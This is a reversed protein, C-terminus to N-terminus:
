KESFSHQSLPPPPPPPPPHHYSHSSKCIIYGSEDEENDNNPPFTNLYLSQSTKKRKTKNPANTIIDNNRNNNRLTEGMITTSMTLKGNTSATSPPPPPSSSNILSDILPSSSSSPSPSQPLPPPLEVPLSPPLPPAIVTPISERLFPLRTTNDTIRHHRHNNTNNSSNTVSNQQLIDDRMKRIIAISNECEKKKEMMLMEIRKSLNKYLLVGIVILVIFLFFLICVIITYMIKYDVSQNDDDTTSNKKEIPESGSDECNKMYIDGNQRRNNDYLQRSCNGKKGYGDVDMVDGHFIYVRTAKNKEGDNVDENRKAVNYLSNPFLYRNSIDEFYYYCGDYMQYCMMFKSLMLVNLTPMATYPERDDSSSFFRCVRKVNHRHVSDTLFCDLQNKGLRIMQYGMKRDEIIYYCVSLALSDDRFLLAECSATSYSYKNVGTSIRCFWQWSGVNKCFSLDRLDLYHDTDFNYVFFHNKLLPTKIKDGYPYYLPTISYLYFSSSRDIEGHENILSIAKIPINILFYLINDNKFVKCTSILTYLHYYDQQLPYPLEISVESTFEKLSEFLYHPPFILSLPIKNEYLVQYIENIFKESDVLVQQIHPLIFFDVTDNNFKEEKQIGSELNGNESVFSDLSHFTHFPNNLRYMYDINQWENKIGDVNVKPYIQYKHAELLKESPQEFAGHDDGYEGLFSKFSEITRVSANRLDTMMADNPLHETFIANDDIFRIFRAFTENVKKMDITFFAEAGDEMLLTVKGMERFYAMGQGRIGGRNKRKDFDDIAYTTPFLWFIIFIIIYGKLM